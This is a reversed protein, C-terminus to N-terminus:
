FQYCKGKYVGKKFNKGSGPDYINYSLVIGGNLFWDVISQNGRINEGVSIKPQGAIERTRYSLEAGKLNNEEVFDYTSPAAGSVDDIYDNFARNASLEITLNLQPNLAFKFGGGMVSTFGILSYPKLNPYKKLTQGETGIPQLAVWSNNYLAKPNHHYVGLGGFLFLTYNNDEKPNYRLVNVEGAISLSQIDNRFSLNRILRNPSTSTADNGKFRGFLLESRLGVYDNFFYKAQLSGALSVNKAMEDLQNSSLDGQYNSPGLMVGLELRHQASINQLCVFLLLLTITNKFM